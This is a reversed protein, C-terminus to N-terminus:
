ARITCMRSELSNNFICFLQVNFSERPWMARLSLTGTGEVSVCFLMDMCFVDIATQVYPSAAHQVGYRLM